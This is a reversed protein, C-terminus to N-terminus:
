DKLFDLYIALICRLQPKLKAGGRSLQLPHTRPARPLRPNRSTTLSPSLFLRSAPYSWRTLSLPTTLSTPAPLTTQTPSSLHSPTTFHLASLVSPFCPTARHTHVGDCHTHACTSRTHIRHSHTHTYSHTYTHQTSFYPLTQKPTPFACPKM